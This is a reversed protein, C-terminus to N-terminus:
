RIPITAASLLPVDNLLANMFTFDLKVTLADPGQRWGATFRSFRCGILTDVQAQGSSPNLPDGISITIIFNAEFLGTAIVQIDNSLDGFEERYLEISGSDTKLQGRTRGIPYPTSQGYVFGPACEPAYDISHIGVYLKNFLKIKVYSFDARNGNIIPVSPVFPM